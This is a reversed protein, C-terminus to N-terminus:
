STQQVLKAPDRSAWVFYRDKSVCYAFGAQKLFSSFAEINEREGKGRHVEAAINQVNRLAAPPWHYVIDYEAGECDLKLLSIETLNHRTLFGEVSLAPVEYRTGERQPDLVSAKTPFQDHAPDVLTMTGTTSGLAAEVTVVSREAGENLRLNETLFDYNAKVPEIGYIRAQPFVSLMYLCFFGLNAGVDVVVLPQRAAFVGRKFGKLYCDDLVIMKFECLRKRPVRVKLGGTLVFEVPDDRLLGLKSRIHTGPNEIRRFLNVYRTVQSSKENM